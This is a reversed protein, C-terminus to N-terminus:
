TKSECNSPRDTGSDELLKKQKPRLITHIFTEYKTLADQVNENPLLSSDETSIMGDYNKKLIFISSLFPFYYNNSFNFVVLPQFFHLFKVLFNCSHHRRIKRCM